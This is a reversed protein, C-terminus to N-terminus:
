LNRLYNLFKDKDDFTKGLGAEFQEIGRVIHAELEALKQEEEETLAEEDKEAVTDDKATLGDSCM